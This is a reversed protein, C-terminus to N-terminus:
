WSEQSPERVCLVAKAVDIAKSVIGARKLEEPDYLCDRDYSKFLRRIKEALLSDEPKSSESLRNKAIIEKGLASTLVTFTSSATTSLYVAGGHFREAKLDQAVIYADSCRFLDLLGM